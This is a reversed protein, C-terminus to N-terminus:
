SQCPLPDTECAKAQTKVRDCQTAVSTSNANLKAFYIQNLRELDQAKARWHAIHSESEALECSHKEDKQRFLELWEERTLFAREGACLLKQSLRTIVQRLSKLERRQDENTRRTELFKGLNDAARARLDECAMTLQEFKLHYPRAQAQKETRLKEIM